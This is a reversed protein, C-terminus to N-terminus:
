SSSSLPSGSGYLTAVEAASTVQRKTTAYTSASNGQGVVAIRQPLFLVGGERLDRFETEIGLVRAVASQDIATSIAM